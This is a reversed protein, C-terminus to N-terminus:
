AEGRKSAAGEPNLVRDIEAAAIMATGYGTIPKFRGKAVQRYTWARNKGFMAAVEEYSYAARKVANTTTAM